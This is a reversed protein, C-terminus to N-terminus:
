HNFFLNYCVFNFLFFIAIMKKLKAHLSPYIETSFHDCYEQYYNVLQSFDIFDISPVANEKRLQEQHSSQMLYNAFAAHMLDNKRQYPTLFSQSFLNM